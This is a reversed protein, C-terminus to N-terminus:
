PLALPMLLGKAANAPSVLLSSSSLLGPVASWCGGGRFTGPSVLSCGAGAVCPGKTVLGLLLLQWGQRSRPPAMADSAASVSGAPLFFNDRAWFRLCCFRACFFRACACANPM